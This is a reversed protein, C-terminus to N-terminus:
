LSMFQHPWAPGKNDAILPTSMASQSILPLRQANWDILHEPAGISVLNLQLRIVPEDVAAMRRLIVGPLRALGDGQAKGAELEIRERVDMVPVAVIEGAVAGQGFPPFSYFPPMNRRRNVM